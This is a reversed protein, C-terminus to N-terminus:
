KIKLVESNEQLSHSFGDNSTQQSLNSSAVCVCLLLGCIIIYSLICFFSVAEKKHSQCSFQTNTKQKSHYIDTQEQLETAAPLGQPM